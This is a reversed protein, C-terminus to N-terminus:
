GTRTQFFRRRGGHGELELDDANQVLPGTGSDQTVHDQPPPPRSVAEPDNRYEQPM